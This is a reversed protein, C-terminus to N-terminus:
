IARHSALYFVQSVYADDGMDIGSLGGDGLPHKKEAAGFMWTVVIPAFGYVGSM